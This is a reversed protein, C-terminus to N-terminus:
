THIISLIVTGALIQFTTLERGSELRTKIEDTKADVGDQVYVLRQKAIDEFTFSAGTGLQHGDKYLKGHAPRTVIFLQQHNETQIAAEDPFLLLTGLESVQLKSVKINPMQGKDAHLRVHFIQNDVTHGAPDSVTFRFQVHQDAFRNFKLPPKYSIKHHLLQLQTFNTLVMEPDESLVICGADKTENSYPVFYPPQTIMYLLKRDNSDEDTFWLMERRLKVKHSHRVDASMTCERDLEPFKLDVQHITIHFTKLDSINPEKAKDALFFYFRDEFIEAGNHRYYLRRLYIDEQTFSDVKTKEYFSYASNKYHLIWDRLDAPQEKQRLVLQGAQLDPQQIQDGLYGQKQKGYVLFELEKISSDVDTARLSFEDIAVMDNKNIELGTNLILVPKEDDVPIINVIFAFEVYERGDTANLIINDSYTDSNDHQYVITGNDLDRPTFTRASKGKVFLEGHKLGRVVKVKVNEINDKDSIRLNDKSSIRRSQGEFLLLGKNKTVTPSLTNRPQVSIIVLIPESHSAETDIAEFVVQYTRVKNSATMPPTYAIKLDRLDKQYFSTIPNHPDDTRIISGEGPGLPQTVNLILNEAKTEMDQVGLIDTTILKTVFQDVDMYLSSKFSPKPRENPNVGLIRVAMQFYEKSYLFQGSRHVEVVMPIYDRNPSHSFSSHSYRVGAKIFAACDIRHAASRTVNVLRGYRLLGKESHLITVECTELNSNYEFHLVKSDIPDSIGGRHSVILGANKTVIKMPSFDVTIELVVRQVITETATDVRVKLKVFDRSPARSGLHVFRVEGRVFVCPFSNPLMYGTQESLANDRIVTVKCRDTKPVIIKLHREPDLRATRGYSVVLPASRIIEPVKREARIATFIVALLFLRDVRAVM